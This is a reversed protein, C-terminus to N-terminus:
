GRGGAPHIEPVLSVEVLRGEYGSLVDRPLWAELRLRSAQGSALRLRIPRRQLGELTTAALPEGGDSVRVRLLGNLASSSPLARLAVALETGTQNRLRFRRVARPGGPWLSGAVMVPRPFPPTVELEGSPAVEVRVTAGLPSGNADPRSWLLLAVALGVGILAGALRAVNDKATTGHRPM